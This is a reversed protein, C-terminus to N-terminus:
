DYLPRAERWREHTWLWTHPQTVIAAELERALADILADPQRPYPPEAIRRFTIEYRGRGVRACHGYWVPYGTFQALKAWGTHFATDRHLFRTWYRPEKRAPRQDAMMAVARLTRHGAMVERIAVRDAILRAGFRGRLRAMFREFLAVHLPRYIVELPVPLRLSCALLFWEWNTQHAGLIIVSQGRERYADFVDPNTIVVRQLLEAESIRAARLTEVVMEAVSRYFERCIADREAASCAPLAQRLNDRVLETRYRVVARLVFALPRALLYTLGLPLRALLDLFAMATHAHM